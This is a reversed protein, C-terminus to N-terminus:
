PDLHPEAGPQREQRAFGPGSLRDQHVRKGQDEAAAGRGVEDPGPLVRGRDLRGEVQGRGQPVAQELAAQGAEPVLQHHPALDVGGPAPAGGDVPRQDRHGRQALQRRQQDRHVALVLGLPQEVRSAVDLVEVAEPLDIGAPQGTQVGAEPRHLAPQLLQPAVPALQLPAALHELELDLLDIPGPQRRAFLLRQPLLPQAALVGAAQRAQRALGVREQVLVLAGGQRAQALGESPDLLQGGDVRAELAVQLGTGLDHAHELVERIVQPVVGAVQLDAGLPEVLDLVPQGQDLAQLPLVSRPDLLDDVEPALAPALEVPQAVGLLHLLAELPLPRRQHAAVELCGARDRRQAPRLGALELLAELLLQALQGHLAGAEPHPHSGLGQRLLRRAGLAPLGVAEVRHLEQQRGVDSLLQPRKLAYGRATLERAQQQGQAARGRGLVLRGAQDEVLHVGADAPPHGVHDSSLQGLQGAPALHQAHGVQRLNCGERIM